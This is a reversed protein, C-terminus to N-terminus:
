FSDQAFFRPLGFLRDALALTSPEDATLWGLRAGDSPALGGYLVAALAARETRIWPGGRRPLVSARGNAVEVHVARDGVEVDLSGDALYGRAEMARDVDLIRVMPGSVLSGLPHEIRHTGARGRDPDVFARPLPDDEAADLEITSVQDGQDAALAYLRMRAKDDSAAMEDITLTIPAHPEAQSLVWGIYGVMRGHREVVFWRRGEDLLRKDWLPEPRTIWGTRRAAEEQHLRVLGDRDAGSVARPLGWGPDRWAGPVADPAVVLSRYPSVSAYGLSAYFGARFPYLLTIADERESARAHLAELLARGVGARRAEPAVGVTAVGGVKVAAGGFWARLPFLFGHGVIQGGMEVVLLDHLEGLPNHAFNRKRSEVGRPDPFASQHVEVLRDLDAPLAERFALSV